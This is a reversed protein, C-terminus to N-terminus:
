IAEPVPADMRYTTTKLTRGQRHANWAQICRAAGERRWGEATKSKKRDAIAKYIWTALVNANANFEGDIMPNNRFAAAFFKNAEEYDIRMARVYAGLMGSSTVGAKHMAKLEPLFKFAKVIAYQESRSFVPAKFDNYEYIISALVSTEACENGSMKVVDRLSRGAGVDIGEFAEDDALTVIITDPVPVGAQVVAACRHQGDILSNDTHIRIPDGTSRWRGQKIDEAYKNVLNDRLKRQRPNTNKLLTKALAPTLDTVTVSMGLADITNGKSKPLKIDGFKITQQISM